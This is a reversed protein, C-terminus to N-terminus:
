PPPHALRIIYRDPIWVLRGKPDVVQVWVYGDAEISGGVVTM